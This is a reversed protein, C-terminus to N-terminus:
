PLYLVEAPLARELHNAHAYGRLRAERTLSIMEEELEKERSESKAIDENLLTVRRKIRVSEISVSMAFLLALLGGVFFMFALSRRKWFATGESAEPL